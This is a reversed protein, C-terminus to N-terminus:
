KANVKKGSIVINLTTDSNNLSDINCQPLIKWGSDPIQMYFFCESLEELIQISTPNYPLIRAFYYRDVKLTSNIITKYINNNYYIEIYCSTGQEDYELKTVKAVTYIGDNNFKNNKFITFVTAATVIAAALLLGSYKSKLL